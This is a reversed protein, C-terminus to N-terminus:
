SISPFIFSNSSAFRIMPKLEQSCSDADDNGAIARNGSHRAGGVVPVGILKYEHLFSGLWLAWM